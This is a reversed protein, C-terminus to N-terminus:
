PRQPLRDIEVAALGSILKRSGDPASAAIKAKKKRGTM